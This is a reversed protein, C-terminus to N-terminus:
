GTRPRVFTASREQDDSDARVRFPQVATQRQLDIGANGVNGGDSGIQTFPARGRQPLQFFILYAPAASAVCATLSNSFLEIQFEHQMIM